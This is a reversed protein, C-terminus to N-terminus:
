RAMGADGGTKSSSAESRSLITGVRTAIDPRKTVADAFKAETKGPEQLSTHSSGKPSSSPSSPLTSQLKPADQKPADQKKQAEEQRLNASQTKLMDLWGGAEMGKDGGTEVGLEEEVVERIEQVEGGIAYTVLSGTAEIAHVFRTVGHVFRDLLSQGELLKDKLPDHEIQRLELERLKTRM